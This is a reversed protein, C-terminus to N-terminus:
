DIEVPVRVLDRDLTMRCNVYNFQTYYLYARHGITQFTRSPSSPDLLAPYAIPNPDGCQYTGVLEVEALAKIPSWHILDKSTAMFLVGKQPGNPTAMGTGVWQHLYTSYVVRSLQWGMDISACLHDTTVSTRYPDLFQFAFRQGDWARWSAPQDLTRTRIVCTGQAAGLRAGVKHIFAYYAFHDRAVRVINTPSYMGFSSNDPQYRFPLAAVLQSPSAPHTWTAGGDHSEAMTVADFQCRGNEGSPCWEAGHDRGHYEMHTLTYLDRGNTTYAGSLWAEDDFASPDSSHGSVQTNVIKCDHTVHDLDSGIERRWVYHSAFLNVRGSADRFASAAVDPLDANECKDRSWDFVIEPPGIIQARRAERGSTFATLLPLALVFVLLARKM